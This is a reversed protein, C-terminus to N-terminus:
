QNLQVNNIDTNADTDSIETDPPLLNDPTSIEENESNETQDASSQINSEELMNRKQEALKKELLKQTYAKENESGVKVWVQEAGGTVNSKEYTIKITNNDFDIEGAAGSYVKIANDTNVDYYNEQQSVKETTLDSFFFKKYNAFQINTWKLDGTNFKLSDNKPLSIIESKLGETEDNIVEIITGSLVTTDIRKWRGVIYQKTNQTLHNDIIAYYQKLGDSVAPQALPLSLCTDLVNLMDTYKDEEANETVSAVKILMYYFFNDREEPNDNNAAMAKCLTKLEDTKGEDFYKDAAETEPCSTYSIEVEKHQSCGTLCITIIMITILFKFKM